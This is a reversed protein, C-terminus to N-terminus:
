SVIKQGRNHVAAERWKIISDVNSALALKIAENEWENFEGHQRTTFMSNREKAIIAQGNSNINPFGNLQRTLNPAGKVKISALMGRKRLERFVEEPNDRWRSNIMKESTEFAYILMEKTIIASRSAINEPNEFHTIFWEELDTLGTLFMERKVDNMPARMEALNLKIKHKSLYYRISNATKLKVFSKVDASELDFLKDALGKVLISPNNDIIWIRRDAEEIPFHNNSNGAMIMGSVVPLEFTGGGKYEVPIVSDTILTKLHKWFNTAEQRMNRHTAFQVEDLMLLAAGNPNFFRAGIEELRVSRAQNFGDKTTGMVHRLANMYCSKGVGRLASQIFPVVIPKVGPNQIVWAPLDLGFQYEDSGEPGFIRSVIFRFQEWAKEDINDSKIMLRVDNWVNLFRRGGMESSTFVEPAGPKFGTVDVDRSGDILKDLLDAPNVTKPKGELQPLSRTYKGLLQKMAPLDHFGISSYYPNPELLVYKIKNGHGTIRYLGRKILDNAVDFPNDIEIAFARAIMNDVNVSEQLNEKGETVDILQKVFTKTTDASFGKNRLANIFSYFGENRMGMPLSTPIEGRKLMEMIDGDKPKADQIINDMPDAYAMAGLGSVIEAPMESLKVGPQGKILQYNGQVWEKETGECTPGVVFGGDGRVDVGEYKAGGISLNAVSKVRLSKYKEPKAFYLHFGGSKSKVVLEPAPIKHKDSLLRFNTPGNKGGKSDLDMIIMGAGLVGYGVVKAGNYLKSVTEPWRKIEEQDITAPIAKVANEPDKPTNKAWGYPKQPGMPSSYLPFVYFSHKAFKLAFNVITPEESM